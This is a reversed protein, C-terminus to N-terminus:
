FMRVVRDPVDRAEEFQLTAPQGALLGRLDTSHQEATTYQNCRLDAGGCEPAVEGVGPM